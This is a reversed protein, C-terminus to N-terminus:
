PYAMNGAVAVVDLFMQYTLRGTQTNYRSCHYSDVLTVGNISHVAGHSFPYDSQKGGLASITARHAVGGLLLLVPNANLQHEGIERILFRSCNQVERSSPLNKIPLCKVANTIKVRGMLKTAKLVEGLLNGSSDGVFPVGSRNAGHMGPALGLIMLSCSDTGSGPVPNNWYEPHSDRLRKLQNSLRRCKRCALLQRNESAEIIDATKV